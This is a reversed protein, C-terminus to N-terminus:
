LKQKLKELRKLAQKTAEEIELGNKLARLLAINVALKIKIPAHMTNFLEAQIETESHSNYVIIGTKQFLYKLVDPAPMIEYAIILYQGIEKLVNELAKYRFIHEEDGLYQLENKKNRIYCLNLVKYPSTRYFINVDYKLALQQVKKFIRHYKILDFQYVSYVKKYTPIQYRVRKKLGKVM